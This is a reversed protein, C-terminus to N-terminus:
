AFLEKKHIKVPLYKKGSGNKGSGFKGLILYM